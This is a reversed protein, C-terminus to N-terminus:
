KKRGGFGFLRGLGTKPTEREKKQRVDDAIESFYDQATRSDLMNLLQDMQKGSKRAAVCEDSLITITESDQKASLTNM